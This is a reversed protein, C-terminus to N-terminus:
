CRYVQDYFPKTTALNCEFFRLDGSGVIIEAYSLMTKKRCEEVLSVKTESSSYVQEWVREFGLLCM